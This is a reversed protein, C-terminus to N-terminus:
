LAVPASDRRRAYTRLLAQRLDRDLRHKAGSAHGYEHIAVGYFGAADDFQALNPLHVEDKGPLYYAKNGGYITRIGLNAIFADAHAFREPETREESIEVVYGDVQAVNFVTFARAFVGAYPREEDSGHDDDSRSNAQKCLV